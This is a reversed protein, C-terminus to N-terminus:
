RRMWEGRRCTGVVASLCGPDSTPDGEVLLLDAQKGAEVRGAREAIGLLDAAAGTAAHLAEVPTMGGEAVLLHVERRLAEVPVIAFSDTGAAIPVGARRAM